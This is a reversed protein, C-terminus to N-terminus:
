LKADPSIIDDLTPDLKIIKFPREAPPQAFSLAGIGLALICLLVPKM